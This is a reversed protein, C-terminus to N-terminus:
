PLFSGLGVDGAFPPTLSISLAGLTLCSSLYPSPLLVWAPLHTAPLLSAPLHSICSACYPILPPLFGLMFCLCFALSFAPLSTHTWSHTHTPTHTHTHTHTHTTPTHTHHTHHAIAPSPRHPAGRATVGPMGPLHHPAPLRTLCPLATTDRWDHAAHTAVTADTGQLVTTQRATRV